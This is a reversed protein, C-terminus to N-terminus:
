HNIILTDFENKRSTFTQVNMNNEDIDCLLKFTEALSDSNEGNLKLSSYKFKLEEQGYVKKVGDNLAKTVKNAM